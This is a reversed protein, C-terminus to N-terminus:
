KRIAPYAPLEKLERGPLKVPRVLSVYGDIARVIAQNVLKHAKRDYLDVLFVQNMSVVDELEFMGDAGNSKLWADVHRRAEVDSGLQAGSKAQAAGGMGVMGAMGSLGDLGLRHERNLKPADHAPYVLAAFGDDKRIILHNAHIEPEDIELLDVAYVLSYTKAAGLKQDVLKAENAWLKAVAMAQESTKVPRAPHDAFATAQFLNLALATILLTSKKM